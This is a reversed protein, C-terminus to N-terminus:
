VQPQPLQVLLAGMQLTNLVHAQPLLCLNNGDSTDKSKRKQCLCLCIGDRSHKLCASTSFHVLM